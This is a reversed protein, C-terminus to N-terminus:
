PMRGARRAKRQRARERLKADVQAQMARLYIAGYTLSIEAPGGRKTRTPRLTLTRARVEVVFASTQLGAYVSEVIRKVPKETARTTM